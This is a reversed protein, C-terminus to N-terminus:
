GDDLLRVHPRDDADRGRPGRAASKDRAHSSSDVHATVWALSAGGKLKRALVLSHPTPRRSAGSDATALLCWKHEASSEDALVSKLSALSLTDGSKMLQKTVVGVERSGVRVALVDLSSTFKSRDIATMGENAPCPPREQTPRNNSPM